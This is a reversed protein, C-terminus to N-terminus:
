VASPQKAALSQFSRDGQGTFVVSLGEDEAALDIALGAM